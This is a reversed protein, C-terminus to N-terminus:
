SQLESPIQHMLTPIIAGACEQWCKKCRDESGSNLVSMVKQGADSEHTYYTLLFIEKLAIRERQHLFGFVFGVFFFSGNREFFSLFLPVVRPSGLLDGM